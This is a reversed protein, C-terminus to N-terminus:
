LSKVEPATSRSAEKPTEVSQPESYGTYTEFTPVYPQHPAGIQSNAFPVPQARRLIGIQRRINSLDEHIERMETNFDRGNQAPRALNNLVDERAELRSALVANISEAARQREEAVTVRAILEANQMSTALQQELLQNEAVKEQLEARYRMETELRAKEVLLEILENAAIPVEMQDFGAQRVLTKIRDNKMQPAPQDCLSDLECSEKASRDNKEQKFSAPKAHAVTLFVGSSAEDNFEHFPMPTEEKGSMLAAGPTGSLVQTGRFVFNSADPNLPVFVTECNFTGVDAGSHTSFTFEHM